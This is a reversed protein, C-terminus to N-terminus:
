PTLCLSGQEPKPHQMIDLLDGRDTDLRKGAMAAYEANLEILVASRQLRDAVLGTTGAGGFPDLVTAQAIEAGCQCSPQWGLTTTKITGRPTGALGSSPDLGNSSRNRTEDSLVDTAPQFERDVVRVWTAGCGSCVGKSSTGALICRRALETPFTAFHAEDFPETAITWVNRCNAGGEPTTNLAGQRDRFQAQGPYGRQGNGNWGNKSRSISEPLHPTKIAEADFFYRKSKALLFVHEYANTCRDRVSEPMPNPKAWIIADRLYWGDAQLALALLNAQMMLDKTKLSLAPIALYSWCIGCRGSCSPDGCAAVSSAMGQNRAVSPQLSESKGQKNSAM